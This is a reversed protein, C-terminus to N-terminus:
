RTRKGEQTTRASPTFAQLRTHLQLRQEHLRADGGEACQVSGPVTRMQWEECLTLIRDAM